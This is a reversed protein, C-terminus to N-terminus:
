RHYDCSPEAAVMSKVLQHLTAKTGDKTPLFWSVTYLVNECRFAFQSPTTSGIAFSPTYYGSIDPTLQVRQTLEEYTMNYYISPYAGKEASISGIACDKGGDCDATESFTLHYNTPDVVQMSVFHVKSAAPLVTPLVIPIEAQKQMQKKQQPLDTIMQNIPKYNEAAHVLSGTLLLAIAITTKM